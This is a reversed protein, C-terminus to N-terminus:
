ASRHPVVLVNPFSAALVVPTFSKVPDFALSPYLYENIALPAPPTILLTYGDPESGAVFAAGINAGAGPKTIVTVPQGMAAAMEDAIVRMILDTNGGAVFPVVVQIPHTPYATEAAATGAPTLLSALATLAAFIRHRM